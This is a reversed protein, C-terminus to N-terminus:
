VCVATRQEDHSIVHQSLDDQQLVSNLVTSAVSQLWADNFNQRLMDRALAPTDSAVAHLASLMRYVNSIYHNDPLSLMGTM